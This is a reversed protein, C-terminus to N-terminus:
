VPYRVLKEGQEFDPLPGRSCEPRGLSLIKASIIKNEVGMDVGLRAENDM